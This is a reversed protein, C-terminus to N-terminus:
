HGCQDINSCTFEVEIESVSEHKREPSADKHVVVRTPKGLRTPRYGLPPVEATVFRLEDDDEFEDHANIEALFQALLRLTKLRDAESIPRACIPYVKPNNGYRTAGMKEKADHSLEEVSTSQIGM